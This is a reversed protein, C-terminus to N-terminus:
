QNLSFIEKIEGDTLEGIWKEGAAVTMDALDKKDQIMTNIKEEFTRATIMRFVNVNNKQGIRYARDTAQNEVAPNWWLDYHIVSSAATINLGTGAARLSLVLIRNQRDTQFSNVMRDRQQASLQGHLFDANIGLHEKIWHQLLEGTTTYQTFIITKRGAQLQEELLEMLMEGKGSADVSSKEKGTYCSPANCIQKLATIMSLVMARRKVKGSDNGDQNADQLDQITKDVVSQYLAAQETSLTCYQDTVIKEPLDSIISKDTKMRRMIFPATLKKFQELTKSDRRSEIPEAFTKNFFDASGFLGKNAFDMVSWYELLRNEVPTGSMAIHCDAKIACVAKRTDTGINKIHQAEDIVVLKVNEKALLNKGSRIKGYTTLIVNSDPEATENNGYIVSYKLRPAFRNMEKQWNLLLTKPVIVVAKKDKLENNLRMNELVSIVQLTKGLGMDDAIISGMGLNANKVMWSYGNIQYPRLKARVTPPVPINEPTFMERIKQELEPTLVVETGSFDGALAAMLLSNSSIRKEALKKQKLINKVDDASFFLYQDKFYVIRDTQNLLEEFENETLVTDGIAYEWSFDLMERLSIFGLGGKPATDASIRLRMKPKLLKQLCKPIVIQCGVLRLVPISETLLEKLMDLDVTLSDPKRNLLLKLIRCFMSLKGALSICDFFDESSSDAIIEKINRFEDPKSANAIEFEVSFRDDVKQTSHETMRLRPILNGTVAHLPALWTQLSTYERKLTKVPIPDAPTDFLALMYSDEIDGDTAKLCFMNQIFASIFCGLATAGAFTDSVNENLEKFDIYRVSLKKLYSGLKRCITRIQPSIVAPIWRAAFACSSEEATIKNKKKFEIGSADDFDIIQPIVAEKAILNLAMFELRYSLEQEISLERIMDERITGSLMLFPDARDHRFIIGQPTYMVVANQNEKLIKNRLAAAKKLSSDSAMAYIISGFQKKAEKQSLTPNSKDFLNERDPAKLNENLDSLGTKLIKAAAKAAIGTLASYKERFISSVHGPPNETLLQLLDQGLEQIPSFTLEAIGRMIAEDDAPEEDKEDSAETSVGSTALDNWKPVASTAASDINIRRKKLEELLDIGRLRFLVFPDADIEQSMIYIVAALHKCPVAHDPCSCRMKFDSWKEPFIKISNDSAIKLIEPDLVRNALSAIIHPRSMIANMLTNTKDKIMPVTITVRYYSAYHGTVEASIVNDEISIKRVKGTNAYTAGRPIRNANDIKSLAELWQKGWWTTGYSARMIVKGTRISHEVSLTVNIKWSLIFATVDCASPQM